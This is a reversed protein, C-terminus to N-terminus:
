GPAQSDKTEWSFDYFVRLLNGDPDSATFEYLKWPKAEPPSVIRAQRQSWESHLEEVEQRNELNLWILAARPNGYMERFAPDTLFFARSAAGSALL